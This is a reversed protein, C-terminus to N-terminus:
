QGNWKQSIKRVSLYTLHVQVQYYLWKQTIITYDVKMRLKLKLKAQKCILGKRSRSFALLLVTSKIQFYKQYSIINWFDNKVSAHGFAVWLPIMPGTTNKNDVLIMKYYPPATIFFKYSKLPFFTYRLYVYTYIYNYRLLVGGGEISLSNINRKTTAGPEM